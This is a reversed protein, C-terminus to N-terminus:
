SSGKSYDWNLCSLWAKTGKWGHTMPHLSERWRELPLSPVKPSAATKQMVSGKCLSLQSDATGLVGPLQLFSPGVWFPCRPLASCCGSCELPWLFYSSLHNVWCKLLSGLLPLVLSVLSFNYMNAVKMYMRYSEEKHCGSSHIDTM